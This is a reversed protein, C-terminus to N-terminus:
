QVAEQLKVKAAVADALSHYVKTKKFYNTYDYARGKYLVIIQDSVGDKNVSFSFCSKHKPLAIAGSFFDYRYSEVSANIFSKITFLKKHDRYITCKKCMNDCIVSAREGDKAFHLLYSKLTLLTPKQATKKMPAKIEVIALTYVIAIIVIVIMLEILTFGKKM